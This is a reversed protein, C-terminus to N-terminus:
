LKLKANWYSFYVFIIKVKLNNSKSQVPLGSADISILSPLSSESESLFKKLKEDKEDFNEFESKAVDTSMKFNNIQQNQNEFKQIQDRLNSEDDFGRSRIEELQDVNTQQNIRLIQIPLFLVFTNLKSSRFIYKVCAIEDWMFQSFKSNGFFSYNILKFQKQETKFINLYTVCM